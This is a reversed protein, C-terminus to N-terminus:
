VSESGLKAPVKPSLALSSGEGRGMISKWAAEVADSIESLFLLYPKLKKVIPLVVELAPALLIYALKFSTECTDYPFVFM